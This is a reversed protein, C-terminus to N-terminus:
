NKVSYISYVQNLTEEDMAGGVMGLFDGNEDFVFTSPYGTLSRYFVATEVPDVDFVIPFTYGADDYWARVESVSKEGADTQVNVIVIEVYESNEEYFKQFEPMEQMCYGCWTTFFNVFVFKGKFESVDVLNGMGDELVFNLSYESDVSETAETDSDTSKSAEQDEETDSAKEDDTANENDIDKENEDETAVTGESIGNNEINESTDSNTCGVLAIVLMLVMSISLIKNM